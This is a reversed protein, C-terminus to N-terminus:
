LKHLPPGCRAVTTRRAVVRLVCNMLEQTCGLNSAILADNLQTRLNFGGSVGIIIDSYEANNVLEIRGTIV